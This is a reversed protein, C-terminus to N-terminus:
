ESDELRRYAGPMSEVVSAFGRFNKKMQPFFDEPMGAGRYFQESTWGLDDATMKSYTRASLYEGMTMYLPVKWKDCIWGAQGVHDPHMHTCLVAKVPKGDLESAFIQEWLEQTPDLGIGTDIVWWGDSDELLYLNIHDLAMPLPMRLWKIGPAVELAQGPEPLEQYPYTLETL